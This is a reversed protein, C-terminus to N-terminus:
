FPYGDLLYQIACPVGSLTEHCDPHSPLKPSFPYVYIFPSDRQQEGSVTVDNIM